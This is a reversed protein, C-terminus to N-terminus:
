KMLLDHYVLPTLPICKDGSIDLLCRDIDVTRCFNLKFSKEKQKGLAYSSTAAEAASKVQSASEDQVPNLADEDVEIVIELCAKEAGAAVTPAVHTLM